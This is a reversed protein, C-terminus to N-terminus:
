VAISSPTRLDNNHLSNQLMEMLKKAVEDTVTNKTKEVITTSPNDNMRLMRKAGAISYGDEKLLQMIKKIKNLDDETYRRQKGVTRSPHLFEIFEKEWYRITHTPVKLFKAVDGISLQKESYEM